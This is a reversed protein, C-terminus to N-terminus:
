NYRWARARNAAVAGSPELFVDRLLARLPSLFIVEILAVRVVGPPLLLRLGSARTVVARGEGQEKGGGEGLVGAERVGRHLHAPLEAPIVFVYIEEAGGPCAVVRLPRDSFPAQLDAPGSVQCADTGRLDLALTDEHGPGAERMPAAAVSPAVRLDLWLSRLPEGPSAAGGPAVPRARGDAIAAMARERVSRRREEFRPNVLIELADSPKRHMAHLVGPAEPFPTWKLRLWRAEEFAMTEPDEHRLEPYEVRFRPDEPVDWAGLALSVLWLVVLAGPITLLSLARGKTPLKTWAHLAVAVASVAVPAFVLGITLKVPQFWNEQVGLFLATPIVFLGWTLGRRPGGEPEHGDAAGRHRGRLLMWLGPLMLILGLLGWQRFVHLPWLLWMPYPNFPTRVLADSFPYNWMGHFLFDVSLLSHPHAGYETLSFSGFPTGLRTMHVLHVPLTFLLLLAALGALRLVSRPGRSPQRDRWMVFALAGLGLLSVYRSMFLMAATFVRALEHKRYAPQLLLLLLSALWAAIMNVNVVQSEWVDGTVMLALAAITAAGGSGSVRRGLAALSLFLLAAVLGSALPVGAAEFLGLPVLIAFVNGFRETTDLAHLLDRARSPDLPSSNAFLELLSEFLCTPAYFERDLGVFFLVFFGLSLGLNLRDWGEARRPASRPRVGRARTFWAVASVTLLAFLPLFPLVEAPSLGLTGSPLMLGFSVGSVVAWFGLGSRLAWRETASADGPWRGALLLGGPVVLIALLLVCGSVLLPLPSSTASSLSALMGATYPGGPQVLWGSTAIRVNLPPRRGAVDVNFWLRTGM